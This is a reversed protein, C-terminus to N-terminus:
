LNIEDFKYLVKKKPNYYSNYYRGLKKTDRQPLLKNQWVYVEPKFVPGPYTILRFSDKKVLGKPLEVLHERIIHAVVIEELIFNINGDYYDRDKLSNKILLKFDNDNKAKLSLMDFYKQYEDSNLIIYDFPLFHFSGEIWRDSQVKKLIFKKLANRHEIMFQNTKSRATYAVERTNFYLGNTYLFVIDNGPIHIKEDLVGIYDMCSKPDQDQHLRSMSLPFVVYGDTPLKNIDRNNILTM